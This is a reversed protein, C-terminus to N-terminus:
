GLWSANNEKNNKEFREYYSLKPNTGEEIHVLDKVAGIDKDVVHTTGMM